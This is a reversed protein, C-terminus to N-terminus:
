KEKDAHRPFGDSQFSRTNCVLMCISSISQVSHYALLMTNGHGALHDFAEAGVGVNKYKGVIGMTKLRRFQRSIREM